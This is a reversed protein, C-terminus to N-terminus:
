QVIIPNVGVIKNEFNMVKIMYSGKALSQPLRLEEVQLRSGITVPTNSIVKGTVDMVQVQYKGNPHNKFAIRTVFNTVPNPYVSILGESTITSNTGRQMETAPVEPKTTNNNTIAPDEAPTEKDLVVVEEKPEDKKKKKSFALYENALDSANFVTEASSAKEAQLTNLNVRFYGQTSTSSCVIINEGGDKEVCAGNTSFGGPLGQISGKFTAVQTKMDIKYVRRNAGILWLNGQADAILDGGYNSSSHVTYKGNSPDDILAGLDKMEPKKDTEFRILHDANNTLAYGKGDSGIVMRTVQNPVDHRGQLAGFSEGEFYFVKTTKSKMDLYRLENIGMPTYYLRDHKKDYALAASTTAFPADLPLAV